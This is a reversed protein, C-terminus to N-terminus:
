FIQKNIIITDQFYSIQPNLGYYLHFDVDTKGIIKIYINSNEPLDFCTSTQFNVVGKLTSIGNFYELTFSKDSKASFQVRVLDNPKESCSCILLFIGIMILNIKKM